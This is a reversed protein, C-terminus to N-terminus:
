LAVEVRRHRERHQDQSEREDNDQSGPEEGSLRFLTCTLSLRRCRGAVENARVGYVRFVIADAEVQEADGLVHEEILEADERTRRCRPGLYCRLERTQYVYIGRCFTFVLGLQHESGAM